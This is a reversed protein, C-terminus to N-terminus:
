PMPFECTALAVRPKISEPCFGASRAGKCVCCVLLPQSNISLGGIKYVSASNLHLGARLSYFVKNIAEDKHAELHEPLM